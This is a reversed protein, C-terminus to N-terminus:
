GWSINWTSTETLFQILGLAMTRGSPNHWFNWLSCRSDFRRGEPKYRQAEVLQCHESRGYFLLRHGSSYVIACTGPHSDTHLQGTFLVIVAL